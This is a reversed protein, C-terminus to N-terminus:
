RRRRREREEGHDMLGEDEVRQVGAETRCPRTIYSDQTDDCYWGSIRLPYNPNIVPLLVLTRGALSTGGREDFGVIVTGDVVTITSFYNGKIHDAPVLGATENNSPLSGHYAYYDEVAMRSSLSALISEAVKARTKYENFSPIAIAALISIISVVVTLEILTFGRTHPM